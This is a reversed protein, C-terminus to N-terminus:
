HVTNTQIVVKPGAVQVKYPPLFVATRDDEPVNAKTELFTFTLRASRESNSENAPVFKWRRAAAVSVAKLLSHGDVAHASIVKGTTDIKIDVNVDGSAHAAAAIPPYVPAVAAVVPPADTTQASVNVCAGIAILLTLCCLQLKM